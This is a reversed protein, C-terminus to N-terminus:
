VVALVVERVGESVVGLPEHLVLPEGVIPEVTELGEAEAVGATRSPLLDFAWVGGGTHRM